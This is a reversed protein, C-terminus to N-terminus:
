SVPSTKRSERFEATLVEASVSKGMKQYEREVARLLHSMTVPGGEDAALFAAALAVNKINGGSLKFGAALYRFDLDDALPTEAPWMANWIRLRAAEDPFPFRISFALRRLFADDMNQRLNTALITAGQYSEMKQLLYSTEINAYRDHSDRIESRKGFLADAEDFFLIANGGEAATFIRDLNKETEGIYKCIVSALDIKYLDLHLENAMIEAALTKGTGSPGAFLATAGKGQSLKRDFGWAGLVQESKAVRVCFERLQTITGIPLVLDSWTQKPQLRRAVTALAPECQARAAAFLDGPTPGSGNTSSGAKARVRAQACGEGAAREIQEATLRYHTALIDLTNGDLCVERRDLAREWWDRRQSADLPQFDLTIVTSDDAVFFSEKRVSSLVVSEEAEALALALLSQDVAEFNELYALARLLKAERLVLMIKERVSTETTTCRSLDAALLERGTGAALLAAVQRMQSRSGGRFCVILRADEEELNAMLNPLAAKINSSVPLEELSTAGSVRSCFGLLRPDMGQKGLIFQTIREDLKVFHALLPAHPGVPDTVLHIVGHRLLPAGRAFHDRRDIKEAASSCLLNLVMDVSPYKRTVDDQLFAYLREYRLDIEPALAIAVVALDFLSLSFIRGLEDLTSGEVPAPLSSQNSSFTPAGPDRRLARETDSWSIELGRLPDVATNGDNESCQTKIARELLQDLERLVPLIQATPCDAPSLVEHM